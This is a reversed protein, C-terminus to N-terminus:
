EPHVYLISREMKAGYSGFIHLVSWQPVDVPFISDLDAVASFGDIEINKVINKLVCVICGVISIM